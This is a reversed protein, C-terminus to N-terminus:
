GGGDVRDLLVTLKAQLYAPMPRAGSLVLSIWGPSCGCYNALVAQSVGMEKFRDRLPHPKPKYARLFEPLDRM